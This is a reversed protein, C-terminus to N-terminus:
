LLQAATPSGVASRAGAPPGSALRDPLITRDSQGTDLHIFGWFRRKPEVRLGRKRLEYALVVEYLSELLGPGLRTHIKFAADVVQKSIENETM